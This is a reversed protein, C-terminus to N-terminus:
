KEGKIKAAKKKYDLNYSKLYFQLWKWDKKDFLQMLDKEIKEPDKNKSWGLRNAVQIVHTDVVIGEVKNFGHALIANASKRGIGPIQILEEMKDPVKGHFKEVIMASANKIMKAKNKYFTIPSIIKEVDKMDAKALKKANPYKKFLEKTVNNVVTDLCQASLITAIALEFTNSFDTYHHTKPYLKKIEELQKRAKAKDM